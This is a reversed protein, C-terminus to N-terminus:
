PPRQSALHGQSLSVTSPHLLPGCGYFLFGDKIPPVGEPLAPLPRRFHGVTHKTVMHGGEGSAEWGSGSYNFEDTELLAEGETLLRYRTSNM